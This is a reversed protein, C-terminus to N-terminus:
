NLLQQGSICVSGIASCHVQLQVVLTTSLQFLIANRTVTAPM